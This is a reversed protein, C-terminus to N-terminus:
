VAELMCFLAYARTTAEQREEPSLSRSECKYVWAHELQKSFTPLSPGIPEPTTRYAHFEKEGIIVAYGDAVRAVRPALRVLWPLKCLQAFWHRHTRYVGQPTKILCIAPDSKLLSKVSRTRESLRRSM